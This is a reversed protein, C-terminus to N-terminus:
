GSGGPCAQQQTPLNTLDILTGLQNDIKRTAELAGLAVCDTLIVGRRIPGFADQTSYVSSGIHNLWLAYFLFGEAQGKPNYAFANLLKNILSFSKTLNPTAKALDGVAPRLNDIPEQAQRAFPRLQDRIVPTTQRAFPRLARQADALARAGPRLKRLTPELLDTAETSETLAEQTTSLANPLLRLTERLARDENAFAEFVANQSVVLEALDEDKGGIATILEQLNHVLRALKRRRESIAGSITAVDRSLPEFRRLTNSLPAGDGKLGEAGGAVLLRLYTRTPRDLVSLIEDLNVDPKTQAVPITHGDPVSPANQKGPDMEIVMDKLGTKPRLLMTADRKILESYKEKISMTVIARGDELEVKKIEGVPVGAINVTQGQGPTVSQATSFEAKLEFFDTGVVPVWAPLYFRQHSLIYGAVFLSVIFLIVVAIFDRSHKRIASGM